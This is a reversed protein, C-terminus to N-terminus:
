LGPEFKYIRSAGDSNVYIAGERDVEVDNFWHSFLTPISGSPQFELNSAVIQREGSRLDIETLSSSGGEVVYLKSGDANVSIGEPAQLGSAIEEPEELLAGNRFIKISRLRRM